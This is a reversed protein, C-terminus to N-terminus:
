GDEAGEPAPPSYRWHTVRLDASEVLEDNIDVWERDDQWRCDIMRFPGFLDSVTGVHEVWLDVPPGEEDKPATEIPQWGGREAAAKNAVEQIHEALSPDNFDPHPDGWYETQHYMKWAFAVAELVADVTDDGTPKFSYWYADLCRKGM